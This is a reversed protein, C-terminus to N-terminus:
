PASRARLLTAQCYQVGSLTDHVWSGGDQRAPMDHRRCFGCTAQACAAREEAIAARIVNAIEARADMGAFAVWRSVDFLRDPREEPTM